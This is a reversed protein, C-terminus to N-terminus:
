WLLQINVSRNNVIRLLLFLRGMFEWGPFTEGKGKSRFGDLLSHLAHMERIRFPCTGCWGQSTRSGSLHNGRRLRPGVLCSLSGGSSCKKWRWWAELRLGSAASVLLSSFGGPPWWALSGRSSCALDIMLPSSDELSGVVAEVSQSVGAFAATSLSFAICTHAYILTLGQCM